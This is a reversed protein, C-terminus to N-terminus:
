EDAVDKKLASVADKDLNMPSFSETRNEFASARKTSAVVHNPLPSDMIPHQVAIFSSRIKSLPRGNLDSVGLRSSPSRGRPSNDDNDATAKNEFLSRLNRVASSSRPQETM